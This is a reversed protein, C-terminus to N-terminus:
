PVGDGTLDGVGPSSAIEAPLTVPFGPALSGNWLVVYLRKTSTGFVISKHGPTLGLDAIAPHGQRITGGGAFAAPFGPKSPVTLGQGSAGGGTALLGATLLASVCPWRPREFRREM